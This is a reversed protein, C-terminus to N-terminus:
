VVCVYVDLGVQLEVVQRRLREVTLRHRADRASAEKREAELLENTGREKKTPLQLCALLYFALSSTSQLGSHRERERERERGRKTFLPIHCPVRTKVLM